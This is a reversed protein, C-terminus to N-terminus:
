YFKNLVNEPLLLELAAVAGALPDRFNEDVKGRRVRVCSSTISLRPVRFNETFHTLHIRFAVTEQREFILQETRTQKLPTLKPLFASHPPFNKKQLFVSAM